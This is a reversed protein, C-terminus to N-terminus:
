NRELLGKLGKITGTTANGALGGLERASEHALVTGRQLLNGTAAITRMVEKNMAGIIIISVEQATLGGSHKGLDALHIDALPFTVPQLAQSGTDMWVTLRGGTINLANIYLKYKGQSAASSSSSKVNDLIVSINSKSMVGEVTMEPADITVQEVVIRETWASTWDLQVKAKKLHAANPAKYGSPNGIVLGDFEAFGRLFSVAVGDLKISTRTLTPGIREVAHKLITDLWLHLAAIVVLGIALCILLFRKLYRWM